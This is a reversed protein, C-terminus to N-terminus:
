RDRGFVLWWELQALGHPGPTTTNRRLLGVHSRVVTPPHGERLNTIGPISQAVQEVLLGAPFLVDKRPTDRVFLILKGGPRLCRCLNRVTKALSVAYAAFFPYYYRASARVPAARISALAAKVANPLMELDESAVTRKRIVTSGMQAAKLRSAEHSFMACLTEVEPAWFRSYDMRNAYPPSTVVVDVEGVGPFQCDEANMGAVTLSGLIRRDLKKSFPLTQALWTDLALVIADALGTTRELGGRKYWTRNDCTRFCVFSRAALMVMAAAFRTRVPSEWFPSPLDFPSGYSRLSFLEAYEDLECQITASIWDPCYGIGAAPVRRRKLHRLREHLWHHLESARDCVEPSRLSALLLVAPNIDGLYVQAGEYSLRSLGYAQGAMPDLTRLGAPAGIVERYFEEQPVTFGGYARDYYPSQRYPPTGSGGLRKM